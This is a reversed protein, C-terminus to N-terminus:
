SPGVRSHQNAIGSSAAHARQPDGAMGLASTVPRCIHILWYAGPPIGLKRESAALPEAVFTHAPSSASLEGLHVLAAAHCQERLQERQSLQRTPTRLCPARRSKTSRILSCPHAPPGISYPAAGSKVTTSLCAVRFRHRRLRFCTRTVEQMAMALRIAESGPMSWADLSAFAACFGPLVFRPADDASCFCAVTRRSLWPSFKPHAISQYKAVIVPVTSSTSSKTQDCRIHSLSARKIVATRECIKEHLAVM